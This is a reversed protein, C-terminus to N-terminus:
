ACKDKPYSYVKGDVTASFSVVEGYSGTVINYFHYTHNQSAGDVTAAHRLDFSADYADSNNIYVYVYVGLDYKFCLSTIGDSQEDDKNCSITFYLMFLMIIFLIRLFRNHKKM